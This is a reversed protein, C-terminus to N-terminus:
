SSGFLGLNSRLDKWASTASTAGLAMYMWEDVVNHIFNAFSLGTEGAFCCYQGSWLLTLWEAGSLCLALWDMPTSAVRDCRAIM